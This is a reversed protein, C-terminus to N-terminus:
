LSKILERIAQVIELDPNLQEAESLYEQARRRDKKEVYVMAMLARLQASQPMARIGQSLLDRAQDIEGDDVFMAVIDAYARVDTPDEALARRYCRLAEEKHEQHNHVFGLAYWISPYNPSLEALRELYGQAEPFHEHNIALNALNFEIEAKQEPDQVLERATLLYKEAEDLENKNVLLEALMAYGMPQEESLAGRLLEEGLDVFHGARDGLGLATYREGQAIELAALRQKALLLDPDAPFREVLASAYVAGREIARMSMARAYSGVYIDKEQLNKVLIADNLALSKWIRTALDEFIKEMEPDDPKRENMAKQIVDDHEKVRRRLEEVPLGQAALGEDKFRSIRWEGKEQELSFNTWFWHRGTEKYVATGMPMELLTGSLPTDTLELSWCIEIEKPGGARASLVSTPVWLASQPAKEAERLFYIEFRSPHAEDFWNHRLEIWESRSRGELLPGNPALLDYCLGYDGLSWAGVFNAVTM